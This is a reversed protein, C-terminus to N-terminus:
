GPSPWGACGAALIGAQVVVIGCLLGPFILYRKISVNEKYVLSFPIGIKRSLPLTLVLLVSVISTIGAAAMLMILFRTADMGYYLKYNSLLTFFISAFFLLSLVPIVKKDRQNLEM